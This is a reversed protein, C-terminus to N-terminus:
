LSPVAVHANWRMRWWLICTRAPGGSGSWQAECMAVDRPMRKNFIRCDPLGNKLTAVVCANNPQEAHAVYFAECRSDSM